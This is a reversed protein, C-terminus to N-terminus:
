IRFLKRETERAFAYTAEESPDLQVKDQFGLWAGNRDIVLASIVLKDDVLRETGLVVGVYHQAAADAIEGWARELFDADPPPLPRAATRYGPIFTEPFCLIQVERKGADAIASKAAAVADDRSNPFPLNALAIRAIAM